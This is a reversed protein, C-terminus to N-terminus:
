GTETETIQASVGEGNFNKFDNLKLTTDEEKKLKETISKALPHESSSECLNALCYLEKM